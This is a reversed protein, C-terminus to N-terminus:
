NRLSANTPSERLAAILPHNFRSYEKNELNKGGNPNAGKALLLDVLRCSKAIVASTLLPKRFGPSGDIYISAGRDLMENVLELIYPNDPQPYGCAWSIPISHEHPTRPGLTPDANHQLLFWAMEFPGEGAADTYIEGDIAWSLPTTGSWGRANINACHNLLIKGCNVSDGRAALHLPTQKELSKEIRDAGARLAKELYGDFDFFAAVHLAPLFDNATGSTIFRKWRRFRGHNPGLLLSLRRSVDSSCNALECTKRILQIEEYASSSRWIGRDGRLRLFVQLWRIIVTESSFFRKVLIQTTPQMAAIVAHHWVNTAAYDMFPYKELYQEFRSELSAWSEGDRTIQFPPHEIDAFSLYNLCLRPSSLKM